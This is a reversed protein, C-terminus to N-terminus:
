FKILGAEKLLNFYNILGELSTEGANQADILYKINLISNVGNICLAAEAQDSLGTARFKDKIEQPLNRLKENFGEYGFERPDKVIVPIMNMARREMTSLQLDLPEMRFEAARASATHTLNQIISEALNNLNRTQEIILDRLRTGTPSLELISNLTM